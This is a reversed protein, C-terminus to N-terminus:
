AGCFRGAQEPSARLHADIYYTVIARTFKPDTDALLPATDAMWGDVCVTKDKASAGCALLNDFGSRYSQFQAKSMLPGHGPVLWKFDTEAIRALAAQWRKPCATDLFPAPLTVLDGAALVGAAEDLVWLDTETVARTELELRLTRGGITRTAAAAVLENPAMEAHGDILAMDGKFQAAQEPKLDKQNLAAALQGRYNPLFGKLAGQLADSSIVRVQPYRARLLINGGIHDLHWHSNIIAQVPMGKKTAFDIIQQTHARHRGTDMVILGGQAEWIVTNGDPQSGPTFAGPLLTIGPAVDVPAALAACSLLGAAVIITKLKM